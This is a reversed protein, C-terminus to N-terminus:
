MRPGPQAREQDNDSTDRHAELFDLRRLVALLPPWSTSVIAVFIICKRDNRQSNIVQLGLNLEPLFHKLEDYTRYTSGVPVMSRSQMELDQKGGQM